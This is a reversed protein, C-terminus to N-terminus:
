ESFSGSSWNRTIDISHEPVISNKCSPHFYITFGMIQAKFLYHKSILKYSPLLIIQKNKIDVVAKGLLVVIELISRMYNQEQSM